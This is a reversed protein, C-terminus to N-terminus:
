RVIWYALIMAMMPWMRRMKEAMGWTMVLGPAEIAMKETPRTMIPIPVPPKLDFMEGRM